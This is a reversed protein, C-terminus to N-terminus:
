GATIESVRVCCLGTICAAFFKGSIRGLMTLSIEAGDLLVYTNISAEGSVGTGETVM